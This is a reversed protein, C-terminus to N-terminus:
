ERRELIAIFFGDTGYRDPTLLIFDGGDPPRSDLAATWPVKASIGGFASNECLFEQVPQMNEDDLLSCTVYVLWGGPAVLTAARDLLERQRAANRAVDDRSLRWPLDPNRRITGTGTCPADVLVRDAKGTLDDFWPDDNGSIHHPEVIRADARKLRQVMRRLRSASVDGAHIVGRNMMGAALALSKGGAGACLDIVTHGPQADVLAAAMQSGEDQVEVLGDRFARTGRVSSRAMVRLGNPVHPCRGAVVDEDALARIAEEPTAKITNARLDLPPREQMAMLEALADDGLSHTLDQFLWEPCNARVWDPAEARDGAATLLEALLALEADDLVSPGYRSSDFLLAVEPTQASGDGALHALVLTRPAVAQEGATRAIDWALMARRRLVGFVIESIAARDKSGAFRHSQYWREVIRDAPRDLGEILGLIDIAAAVRAAPTM